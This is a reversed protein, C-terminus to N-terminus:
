QIAPPRRQRHPVPPPYWSQRVRRPPPSVFAALVWAHHELGVHCFQLTFLLPRNGCSRRPRLPVLRPKNIQAMAPSSVSEPSEAQEPPYGGVASEGEPRVPVESVGDVPFGACSKGRVPEM